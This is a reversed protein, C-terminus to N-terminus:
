EGTCYMLVNKNALLAQNQEVWTPFQSYTTTQPDLAGAFHGIEFEKTNRCDIVVTSAPDVKRLREHWETPTLYGQATEELSIQSLKSHGTGILEKRVVVRLDPFLPDDQHAVSWKFDDPSLMRLEEQAIAVFFAASETWFDQVARRICVLNPSLDEVADTDKLLAWTFARVSDHSRGALTGNIGETQSAGVLIRGHLDLQRCLKELAARYTEIQQIDETLPHYRYFLIIHQTAMTTTTYRRSSDRPTGTHRFIISFIHITSFKEASEIGYLNHNQNTRSGRGVFYYYHSSKELATSGNSFCLHYAM